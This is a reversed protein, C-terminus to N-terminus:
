DELTSEICKYKEVEIGWDGLTDKIMYGAFKCWSKETFIMQEVEWTPLGSIVLSLIFVKM